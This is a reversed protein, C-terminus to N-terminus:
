KHMVDLMLNYAKEEEPTNSDPEVHRFRVKCKYVKKALKVYERIQLVKRRRHSGFQFLNVLTSFLLPDNYFINLESMGYCIAFNIAITEGFIKGALLGMKGIEPDFGRFQIEHTKGDNDVLYGGCGYTKKIPDYFYKIYAYNKEPFNM